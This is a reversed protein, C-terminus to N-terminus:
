HTKRGPEDAVCKYYCRNMDFPERRKVALGSAMECNSRCSKLWWEHADTTEQIRASRDKQASGAGAVKFNTRYEVVKGGYPSKKVLAGQLKSGGNGIVPWTHPPQVQAMPTMIELSYTGPNLGGGKQSFPGARFKGDAVRAKDQASYSSEKRSITVMLEMGDPLNTTGSIVPRDSGDTTASLTATLAYANCTALLMVSAALFHRM